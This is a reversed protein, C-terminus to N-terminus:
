RRASRTIRPLVFITFWAPSTLLAATFLQKLIGGTENSSPTIQVRRSGIQIVQKKKEGEVLAALDKTSIGRPLKERQASLISALDIDRPPRPVSEGHTSPRQGTVVDFEALNYYNANNKASNLILAAIDPRYAWRGYKDKIGILLDKSLQEPSIDLRRLGEELPIDGFKEYVMRNLFRHADPIFQEIQGAIEPGYIELLKEFRDKVEFAWADFFNEGRVVGPLAWVASAIQPGFWATGGLAQAIPGYTLMAMAKLVIDAGPLRVIGKVWSAGQNIADEVAQGGPLSRLVPLTRDRVSTFADGIPAAIDEALKAIPDYWTM